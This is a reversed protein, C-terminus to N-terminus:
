EPRRATVAASTRGAPPHAEKWLRYMGVAGPLMPLWATWMGPFYHYGGGEFLPFVYHTWEMFGPGMFVFWAVYNALPNRYILGVGAAIWITMGVFAVSVLFPVETFNSLGFTESMRRPFGAVYEELIHVHLGAVTLYYVPLICPGAPRRYTTLLWAVLGFVGAGGIIVTPAAGVRSLGVVFFAILLGVVLILYYTNRM